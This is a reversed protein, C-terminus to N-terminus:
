QKYYCCLTNETLYSNLESTIDCPSACFPFHLNFSAFATLPYGTGKVSGRFVTYGANSGSIGCVEAALLRSFQRGGASKFLSTRKTLLRFTTEACTGDRNLRLRSLDSMFHVRTEANLTKLRLNPCYQLSQKTQRLASPAALTFLGCPRHM